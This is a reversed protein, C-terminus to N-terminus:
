PQDRNLLRIHVQCENHIVGLSQLDVQKAANTQDTCSPLCLSCVWGGMCRLPSQPKESVFSHPLIPHEKTIMM